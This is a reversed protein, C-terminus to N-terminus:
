AGPWWSPLDVAPVFHNVLEYVVILGLALLVIKTSTKV